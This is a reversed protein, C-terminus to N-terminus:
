PPPFPITEHGMESAVEGYVRAELLGPSFDADAKLSEFRVERPHWVFDRPGRSAGFTVRRLLPVDWIGQLVCRRPLVLEVLFIMEAVVMKRALTGSLDMRTISTGSLAESEGWQGWGIERFTPPFVFAALSRCEVCAGGEIKELATHSTDISWLRWCGRFLSRPLVRLGKPLVVGELWALERFTAGSPLLELTLGSLDIVRLFPKWEVPMERWERMKVATVTPPDTLETLVPERVRQWEVEGVRPSVIRLKDLGWAGLRPLLKGVEAEGVGTRLVEIGSGPLFAEAAAAFGRSPLSLEVLASTQGDGVKIGACTSLDLVKLPTHQFVGWGMERLSAPVSVRTVGCGSFVWDGLTKLQTAGLDVLHLASCGHFCLNGISELEPPYAVAALQTCGSFACHPLTRVRSSSLDLAVLDRDDSASSRGFKRGNIAVIFYPGVLGKPKKFWGNVLVEAGVVVRGLAEFFEGVLKGYVRAVMDAGVEHGLAFAGPLRRLTFVRGDDCGWASLESALESRSISSSQADIVVMGDSQLFERIVSETMLRSTNSGFFILDTRHKKVRQFDDSTRFGRDSGGPSRGDTTTPDYSICVSTQNGKRLAEEDGPSVNVLLVVDCQDRLEELM